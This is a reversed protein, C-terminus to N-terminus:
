KAFSHSVSLADHFFCELEVDHFGDLDLTDSMVATTPSSTETEQPPNHIPSTSEQFSELREGDQPVQGQDTEGPIDQAQSDAVEADQPEPLEGQGMEETPAEVPQAHGDWTAMREWEDQLEQSLLISPM